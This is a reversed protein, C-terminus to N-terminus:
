TPDVYTVCPQTPTFLGYRLREDVDYLANLACWAANRYPQAPDDVYLAVIDAWAERAEAFRNSALHRDVQKWHGVLQKLYANVNDERRRLDLVEITMDGRDDRPVITWTWASKPPSRYVPSWELHKFPDDIRPDLLLNEELATDYHKEPIPHLVPAILAGIRVSGARIPFRSGKRKTGNCEGCAFVLNSWTWAFWWYHTSVWVWKGGVKDESGKKPRFHEVPQFYEDMLKECFACKEHQRKMLEPRIEQYGKDLIEKFENDDSGVKNFAAIALPLYEGRKLTLLRPEKGLNLKIM